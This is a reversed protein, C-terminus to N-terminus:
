HRGSDENQSKNSTLQPTTSTSSLVQLLENFNSKARFLLQGENITDWQWKWDEELHGNRYCWEMFFFQGVRNVLPQDKIQIYKKAGAFVTQDTLSRMMSHPDESGIPAAAMTCLEALIISEEESADMSSLLAKKLMTGVLAVMGARAEESM